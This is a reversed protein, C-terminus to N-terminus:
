LYIVMNISFLEDKSHCFQFQHVVFKRGWFRFFNLVVQAEPGFETTRIFFSPLLTPLLFKDQDTDTLDLDM